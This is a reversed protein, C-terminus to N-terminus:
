KIDSWGIQLKQTSDIAVVKIEVVKGKVIRSQLMSSIRNESLESSNLTNGINVKGAHIVAGDITLKTLYIKNTLTASLTHLMVRGGNVGRLTHTSEAASLARQEFSKGVAPNMGAGLLNVIEVASHGSLFRSLDEM